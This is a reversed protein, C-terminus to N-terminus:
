WLQKTLRNYVIADDLWISASFASVLNFLKEFMFNRRRPEAGRDSHMIYPGKPCRLRSEEQFIFFIHKNNIDKLKYYGKRLRLLHRETTFSIKMFIFLFRYFVM